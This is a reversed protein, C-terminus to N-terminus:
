NYLIKDFNTQQYEHPSVLPGIFAVFVLVMLSGGCVKVVKNNLLKM